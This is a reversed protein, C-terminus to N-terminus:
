VVSKRDEVGFLKRPDDKFVRGTADTFVHDAAVPAPVPVCGLPVAFSTASATGAEHDILSDLKAPQRANGQEDILCRRLYFQYEEGFKFKALDTIYARDRVKIRCRGRREITSTSLGALRAGHRDITGDHERGDLGLGWTPAAWTPRDQSGSSM